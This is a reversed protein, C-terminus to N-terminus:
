TGVKMREVYRDVDNRKMRVVKASLKYTPYLGIRGRSRRGSRMLNFVTSRSVGLYSAVDLPSMWDSTSITPVTWILVFDPKIGCSYFRFFFVSPTSLM